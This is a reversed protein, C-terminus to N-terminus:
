KFLWGFLSMFISSITRVVTQVVTTIATQVNEIIRSVITSSKRTVTVNCTAIKAGDDTTVTITTKGEAVATVVGSDVTAINADATSWRVIKNTANEPTFIANLEQTKGVSLDIDTKDLEVGTVPQFSEGEQNFAIAFPSTGNKLICVLGAETVQCDIMETKGKNAGEDILHALKFKFHKLNNYDIPIGKIMSYPIVVKIGDSPIDTLSINKKGQIGVITVDFNMYQVTPQDGLEANVSVEGSLRDKITDVDLQLNEDEISKIDTKHIEGEPEGYMRASCYHCPYYYRSSESDYRRDNYNWIHMLKWPNNPAFGDWSNDNCYHYLECNPNIHILADKNEPAKCEFYVKKLNTSHETDGFACNGISQITRPINIEELGALTFAYEGISTVSDPFLLHKINIGYFAHGDVAKVDSPIFTNNCAQHLKDTDSEIIANCGYRSDFVKNEPDVTIDILNRCGNFLEVGLTCVNKPITIERLDTNAFALTEIATVSEPITITGDPFEFRGSFAWEGITVVGEPIVTKSCGQILENTSQNIIANCNNRSDFMSNEADVVISNLANCHDFPARGITTVGKPIVVDQLRWCYAFAGLGITHLSEPLEVKLLSEINAFAYEGIETIGDGIIARMGLQPLREEFTHRLSECNEVKGMGSIYVYGSDYLKWTVKEGCDGSAIPNGTIAPILWKTNWDEESITSNADNSSYKEDCVTCKWHGFYGAETDTPTKATVYQLKCKHTAYDSDWMEKTIPTLGKEDAYKGNCYICEWYAKHGDEDETADKGEVKNVIHTPVVTFNSYLALVGSWTEYPDDTDEVDTDVPYYVTCNSISKLYEDSGDFAPCPGRFVVEEINSCNDIFTSHIEEVKEPIVLKTLSTCDYFTLDNVAEMNLPLKISSLKQCDAFAAWGISSVNDTIEVSELNTLGAFAYKGIGVIEGENEIFEITKISNEYSNWPRDKKIADGSYSEPESDQPDRNDYDDMMGHGSITLTGTEDLTWELNEGCEGSDVIEPTNDIAVETNMTDTANSFAAYSFTMSLMLM